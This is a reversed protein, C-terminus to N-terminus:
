ASGTRAPVELVSHADPEFAFRWAGVARHVTVPLGHADLFHLDLPFRMGATHVARCRPILLGAGADTADLLALGLLRAQRSTAVPVM